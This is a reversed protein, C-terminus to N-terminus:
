RHMIPSQLPDSQSPDQSPLSLATLVEDIILKAMKVGGKASPEVRQVYDESIKGDLAQFLPIAIVTTGPVQIQKTALEFLRSIVAQLKVPNSNYQLCNLAPEAWSSGPTEDLYYIMCVALVAPRCKATMRDILTQIRTKFLHIFYGFGCPCALLNSLCGCICGTFCDDCPLSTGCACKICNTTSCCILSLLNVITCPSPRLAIDNGGVSIVVIDQSQVHDRIFIDQTKLRGCARDGVTSEEISCNLVAIDPKSSRKTLEHNMWFAIDQKSRPPTLISQYGNM